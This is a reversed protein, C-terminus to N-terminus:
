VKRKWFDTAHTCLLDYCGAIHGCARAFSGHSLHWFLMGIQGWVFAVRNLPTRVVCNHWIDYRMRPMRREFAFVNERATKSVHHWMKATPVHLLTYRASVRSSFEDDDSCWGTFETFYRFHEFVERRYSSAGYMIGTPVTRETTGANLAYGTPLMRGTRAVGALMFMRALMSRSGILEESGIIHGEVGGVTRQTDVDYAAAIEAFYEPLVECDDDLFMIVDGSTEAVGQMRGPAIGRGQANRVLRTRPPCDDGSPLAVPPTSGDDIVVIEDPLRSARAIARLCIILDDPRNRTQIVLSLRVGHAATQEGTYQQVHGSM